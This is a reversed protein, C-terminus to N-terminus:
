RWPTLAGPRALPWPWGVGGPWSLLWPWGVGGPWSLLWPWGVGGGREHWAALLDRYAWAEPLGWLRRGAWLRRISGFRLWLDHVRTRCFQSGTAWQCPPGGIGRKSRRLARSWTTTTMNSFRENSLRSPRSYSGPSTVDNSPHDPLLEAIRDGRPGLVARVRPDGVPDRWGQVGRPWVGTLLEGVDVGLQEPEEVRTLRPRRGQSSRARVVGTVMLRSGVMSPKRASEM